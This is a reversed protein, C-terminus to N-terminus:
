QGACAVLLTGAEVDLTAECGLPVAINKQEHGISLGGLVPIGLGCLRERLVDSPSISGKMGSPESFQGIAIGALSQLIGCNGLQTLMRDVRYAAEGVDELLLIAGRLDPMFSTGISTCLISLNGGLLLGQARGTTRVSFTAEAADAEIRVAETSMLADRISRTFDDGRELQTSVPGHVSVLGAQTWLATHLATIDSFGIVLKPDRRVAAFDLQQVIRQMGYGGRNCFIGRIQPDALAANLDALRDEDTGAFFAHRDLAHPYVRPQLGWSKLVQVATEIKDAPVPGAPSVLAVADGPRLVNPRLIPLTTGPM